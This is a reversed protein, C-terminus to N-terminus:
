YENENNNVKNITQNEELDFLMDTALPVLVRKHKTVVEDKENIEELEARYLFRSGLKSKKAPVYLIKVEITKAFLPDIRSIFQEM